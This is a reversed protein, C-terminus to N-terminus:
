VSSDNYICQAFSRVLIDTCYLSCIQSFLKGSKGAPSVPSSQIVTSSGMNGGQYLLKTASYVHLLRGLHLVECSWCLAYHESTFLIYVSMWCIDWVTCGSESWGNNDQERGGQRGERGERGRNTFPSTVCFLLVTSEWYLEGSPVSTTVHENQLDTRLSM